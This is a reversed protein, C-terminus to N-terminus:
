CGWQGLEAGKIVEIDVEWVHMQEWGERKRVTEGSERSHHIQGNLFFCWRRWRSPDGILLTERQTNTHAHTGSALASLMFSSPPSESSANRHVQTGRWRLLIESCYDCSVSNLSTLFSLLLCFAPSFCIFPISALIIYYYTQLPTLM